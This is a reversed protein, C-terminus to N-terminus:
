TEEESDTGLAADMAARLPEMMKEGALRLGRVPALGEDVRGVSMLIGSVHASVNALVKWALDVAGREGLGEIIGNAVSHIADTERQLAEYEPNGRFISHVKGDDAPNRGLEAVRARLAKITRANLRGTSDFEQLVRLAAFSLQSLGDRYQFLQEGEPFVV